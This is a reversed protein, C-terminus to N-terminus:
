KNSSNQLTKTGTPITFLNREVEGVDGGLCSTKHGRSSYWHHIQSQLLDIVTGGDKGVVGKAIGCDKIRLHIHAHM